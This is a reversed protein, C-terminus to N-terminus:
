SIQGIFRGFWYFLSLKFNQTRPGGWLYTWKNTCVVNKHLNQRIYFFINIYINDCSRQDWKTKMWVHEMQHSITLKKKWNKRRCKKKQTNSRKASMFIILDLALLFRNVSVTGSSICFCVTGSSYIELQTKDCSVNQDLNWLWKKARKRKGDKERESAWQTVGFM